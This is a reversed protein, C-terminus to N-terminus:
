INQTGENLVALFRDYAFVRNRQKGTVERAIGLDMLVQMGATAAPFSLGTAKAVDQLRHVPRAKLANHVRLASSAKRGTEQVAQRDADFLAMLQRATDVASETTSM